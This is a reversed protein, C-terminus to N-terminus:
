RVAIPNGATIAATIMTANIPVTATRENAELGDDVDVVLLTVSEVADQLVDGGPLAIVTQEEVEVEAFSVMSGVVQEFM